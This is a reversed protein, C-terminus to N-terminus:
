KPGNKGGNPGSYSRIHVSKLCHQNHFHLKSNYDVACSKM